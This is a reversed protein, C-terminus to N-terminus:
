SLIPVIYRYLAYVDLAAFAFMVAVIAWRAAQSARHGRILSAWGMLGVVVFFAIALLGPYLYRGQAQAFGLNYYVIEAVALLALVSLILLGDRQGATIRSRFRVWALVAGILVVLSFLALIAYFNEPLPVGMWGFQGWFSHFTTQLADALTSGLGHQAILEATRTQGIVISDHRRLGLFDPWGYIQIDHLWWAGGFILAPLGIWLAGNILRRLTWDERRAKLLLAVGVVGILLYATAKTILALGLLLGILALRRGIPQTRTDTMTFRLCALVTLGIILEALSDNDVGAMMAVHQPLFAVFAATAFALFLQAPFLTRVAFYAVIVVGAGILASFLRMITLNGNSLAFVPAELLYFLPPQHDEYRITGFQSGFASPAFKQAKLSELYGQNWDGMQLSPIAGNTAVQAIYNYHAPEDPVQWAPTKIAYLAAIILYVVVIAGLVGTDRRTMIAEKRSPSARRVDDALGAAV